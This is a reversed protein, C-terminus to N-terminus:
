PRPLVGRGAVILKTVVLQKDTCLFDRPLNGYADFRWNFLLHHGHGGRDSALAPEVYDNSPNEMRYIRWKNARLGFRNEFWPDVDRVRSHANRSLPFNKDCVIVRKAKAPLHLWNFAQLASNEFVFCMESALWKWRNVEKLSALLRGLSSFRDRPWLSGDGLLGKRGLRINLPSRCAFSTRHCGWSEKRHSEESSRETCEENASEVCWPQLPRTKPLVHFRFQEVSSFLDV